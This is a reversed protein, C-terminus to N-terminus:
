LLPRRMELPLRIELNKVGTWGHTKQKELNWQMEQKSLEMEQKLATEINYRMRNVEESILQCLNDDNGEDGIFLVEM